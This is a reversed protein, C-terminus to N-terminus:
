EQCKTEGEKTETTEMKFLVREKHGLLENITMLGVDPQSDFWETSWAGPEPNQRDEHNIGRFFSDSLLEKLEDLSILVKKM